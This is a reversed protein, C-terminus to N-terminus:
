RVRISTPFVMTTSRQQPLLPRRLRRPLRHVRRQREKLRRPLRAGPAPTGETPATTQAPTPQLAQGGGCATIISAILTLMLAVTSFRAKFRQM